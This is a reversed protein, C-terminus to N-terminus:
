FSRYIGKRYATDLDVQLLGAPVRIICCVNYGVLHDPFVRLDFVGSGVGCIGKGLYLNRCLGDYKGTCVTCLLRFPYM